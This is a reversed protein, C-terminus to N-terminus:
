FPSDFPETVPAAPAQEQQKPRKEDPLKKLEPVKFDGRALTERDILRNIYENEYIKGNYASERYGIVAGFQLGVFAREDGNWTKYEFKGPNCKTLVSLFHKFYKLNEEKYSRWDYPCHRGSALSSARYIEQYDGEDIDWELRVHQKDPINEVAVITCLYGGAPPRDFGGTAEEIDDWNRNQLENIM